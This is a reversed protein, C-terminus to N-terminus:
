TLNSTMIYCYTMEPLEPWYTLLAAVPDCDIHLMLTM